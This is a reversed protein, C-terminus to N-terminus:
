GLAAMEWFPAIPEEEPPHYKYDVKLDALEEFNDYYAHPEPYAIKSEYFIM